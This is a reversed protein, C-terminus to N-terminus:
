AIPEWIWAPVSLGAQKWIAVDRLLTAPEGDAIMAGHHLVIMRTAFNLAWALDHTAVLTLRGAEAMGRVTRGLLVRHGDDQGLTPEDLLVGHRPKHMLVLALCLRKKEGESLLLPSAEQYGELGLASWCGITSHTTRSM